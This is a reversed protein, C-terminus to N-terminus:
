QDQLESSQNLDAYLKVGGEIHLVCFSTFMIKM